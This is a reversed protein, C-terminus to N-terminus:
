PNFGPEKLSHTLVPNLKYRGVECVTFPVAEFKQGLGMAALYNEGLHLPVLQMQFCLSSVLLDCKLNL